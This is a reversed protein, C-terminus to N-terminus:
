IQSKSLITINQQQDRCVDHLMNKSNLTNIIDSDRNIYISVWALTM